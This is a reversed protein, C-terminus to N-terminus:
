EESEEGFQEKLAEIQEPTLQSLLNDLKKNSKAEKKKAAKKQHGKVAPKETYKNTRVREIVVRKEEYTMDLFDKYFETLQKAM